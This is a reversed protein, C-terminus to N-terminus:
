AARGPRVNHAGDNSMKSVFLLNFPVELCHAIRAAPVPKLTKVEGRLLRQLYTHSSWGADRALRRASYNKTEMLGALLTPDKLEMWIESAAQVEITSTTMVKRGERHGHGIIDSLIDSLHGGTLGWDCGKGLTLATTATM